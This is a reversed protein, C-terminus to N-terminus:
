SELFYKLVYLPLVLNFKPQHKKADKSSNLFCFVFWCKISSTKVVIEWFNKSLEKCLQAFDLDCLNSVLTNLNESIKIEQILYILRLWSKVYILDQFDFLIMCFCAFVFLVFDFM